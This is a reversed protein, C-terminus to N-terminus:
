EKGVKLGSNLAQVYADLKDDTITGGGIPIAAITQSLGQHQFNAAPINYRGASKYSLSGVGSWKISSIQQEIAAKKMELEEIAKEAKFKEVFQRSYVNVKEVAAERAEEDGDEHQTLFSTSCLAGVLEELRAVTNKLRNLEMKDDAAAKAVAEGYYEQEM